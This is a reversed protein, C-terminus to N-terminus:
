LSGRTILLRTSSIARGIASSSSVTATLAATQPSITYLLGTTLGSLGSVIGGTVAIPGSSGSSISAAAVGIWTTYLSNPFVVNALGFNDGSRIYFALCTNSSPVFIGNYSPAVPPSLPAPVAGDLVFLGGVVRGSLWSTVGLFLIKGTTDGVVLKGGGSAAQVSLVASASISTGSVTLVSVRFYDSVLCRGSSPDFVMSSYIGTGILALGSVTIATGFSISTGSVTGVSAKFVGTNIAYCFVVKGNASDFALMATTNANTAEFIVQGGFSISTGSVTGVQAIGRYTANAISYAVVVKGNASDFTCSVWYSQNTSGVQVATGFSISTGSVTGVIVRSTAFTDCYAIVVRNNLSDFTASVTDNYMDLTSFVVPTGFTITGGSITGVAATGYGLNGADRYAVVLKNNLTDYTAAIMSTSASEFVADAGVYQTIVSVTGDANLGVLQGTSLAGTATFTQTGPQFAAGDFSLAPTDIGTTGDIVVSM